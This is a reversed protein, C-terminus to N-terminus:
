GGTGEQEMRVTEGAILPLVCFRNAQPFLPFALSVGKWPCGTEQKRLTEQEGQRSLEAGPSLSTAWGLVLLSSGPM